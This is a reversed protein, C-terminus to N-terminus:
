VQNLTLLYCYVLDAMNKLDFGSSREFKEIRYLLTNRHLFLQKAAQRVNGQTEYLAVILQQTDDDAMQPNTLTRLEAQHQRVLAPLLKESVTTITNQPDAPFLDRELAYVAPLPTADAHVSGILIHTSTYFDDDLMALQGRLDAQNARSFPTALLFYGTTDTVFAAHIVDEFLERGAALWASHQHRDDTFRVTFHILQFCTATVSPAQTTAKLLYDSWDDNANTAPAPQLMLELLALEREALKNKNICLYKGSALSLCVMNPKQVPVPQVTADPYIALLQQGNM